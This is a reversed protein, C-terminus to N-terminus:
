KVSITLTNSASDYVFTATCPKITFWGPNSVGDDPQYYIGKKASTGNLSGWDSYFGDGNVTVNGVVLETGNYYLRLGGYDADFEVVATYVGNSNTVKSSTVHQVGMAVLGEDEVVPEHFEIVLSAKNNGSAPTYHFTYDYFCDEGMYYVIDIGNDDALFLDKTWTAGTQNKFAGSINTNSTTIQTGDVKIIVRRFGALTTDFSYEGNSPTKITGEDMTNTGDTVKYTLTVTTPVVEGGTEGGTSDATVTINLTNTALDFTFTVKGSATGVLLGNNLSDDLYFPATNDVGFDGTINM